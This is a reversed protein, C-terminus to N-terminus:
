NNEGEVPNDRKVIDTQSTSNVPDDCIVDKVNDLTKAKIYNQLWSEVWSPINDGWNRVTSYSICAAVAFEKQNLGAKKLLQKFREKTM